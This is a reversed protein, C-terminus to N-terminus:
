ANQKIEKPKAIKDKLKVGLKTGIGVGLALGFYTMWAIVNFKNMRKLSKADLLSKELKAANLSALGEEMLLPVLSLFTLKGANNKIFTTAKDIFGKPKEGDAKPRKTFAIITVLSGLMIFPNRMKQLANGFKSINKNIAHGIEHMAAIGIKEKNVAITNAKPIYCANKGEFIPSVKYLVHNNTKKIYSSVKNEFQLMGISNM